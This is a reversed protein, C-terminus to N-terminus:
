TESDERMGGCAAAWHASGDNQRWVGRGDEILGPITAPDVLVARAGKTPAIWCKEITSLRGTIHAKGDAHQSWGAPAVCHQMEGGFSAGCGVIGLVPNDVCKGSM